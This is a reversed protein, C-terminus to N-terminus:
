CMPLASNYRANSVRQIHLGKIFSDATAPQPQSLIRAENHKQLVWERPTISGNGILFDWVITDYDPKRLPQGYQEALMVFVDLCASMASYRRFETKGPREYLDSAHEATLKKALGDIRRVIKPDGLIYAIVRRVQFHHKQGSRVRDPTGAENKYRLILSYLAGFDDSVTLNNVDLCEQRKTLCWKLEIAGTIQNYTEVLSLYKQPRDNGIEPKAKGPIDTDLYETIDGHWSGILWDLSIGTKFHFDILSNGSPSKRKTQNSFAQPSISLLKSVGIGTGGAATKMRKFVEDCDLKDPHNKLIPIGKPKKSGGNEAVNFLTRLMNNRLGGDMPENLIIELLDQNNMM